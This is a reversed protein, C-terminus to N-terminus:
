LKVVTNVAEMQTVKRCATFGLLSVFHNDGADALDTLM